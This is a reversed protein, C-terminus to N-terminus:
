ASRQEGASLLQALEAQRFPKALRPLDPAIDEVDAYGSIILVKMEPRMQRIARALDAGTLGAMMHDTILWDPAPGAEFLALAERGSSAEVVSYGLDELM